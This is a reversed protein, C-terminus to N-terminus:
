ATKVMRGMKVPLDRCTRINILGRTRVSVGLKTGDWRYQISYGQPGQKGEPGPISENKATDGSVANVKEVISKTATGFTPEVVYGDSDLTEM